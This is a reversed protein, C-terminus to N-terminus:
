NIFVDGKFVINYSKCYLHRRGAHIADKYYWQEQKSLSHGLETPRNHRAPLCLAVGGEKGANEVEFKKISVLVLITM